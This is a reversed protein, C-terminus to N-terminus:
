VTALRASSPGADCPHRMWAAYAAAVGYQRGGASRIWGRVSGPRGVVSAAQAFATAIARGIGSAAGTVVAVQGRLAQSRTNM